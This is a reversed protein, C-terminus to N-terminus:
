GGSGSGESRIAGDAEQRTTCGARVRTSPARAACFILSPHTHLVGPLAGRQVARLCGPRGREGARHVESPPDYCDEVRWHVAIQAEPVQAEQGVDM